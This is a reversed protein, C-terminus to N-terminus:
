ISELKAKLKLRYDGYEFSWYFGNLYFYEFKNFISFNWDEYVLITNIAKMEEFSDLPDIHYVKGKHIKVLDYKKGKKVIDIPMYFSSKDYTKKNYTVLMNEALYYSEFEEFILQNDELIRVKYYKSNYYYISSSKKINLLNWNNMEFIQLILPFEPFVSISYEDHGDLGSGEIMVEYNDKHFKFIVEVDLKKVKVGARAVNVKMELGTLPKKFEPEWIEKSRGKVAPYDRTFNLVSPAKSKVRKKHKVIDTRRGLHNNKTKFLDIESDYDKSINDESALDNNFDDLGGNKISDIYDFSDEYSEFKNLYILVGEAFKFIWYFNNHFVMEFEETINWKRDLLLKKAVKAEELTNFEGYAFNANKLSREIVFKGWKKHIFKDHVEEEYFENDSSFIRHKRKRNKSLIDNHYDNCRQNVELYEVASEFSSFSDEFILINNKVQFIWFNCDYNVLPNKSVESLKWDNEVLLCVAAEAQKLSSFKGFKIILNNIKKKVLYSNNKLEIYEILDDSELNSISNNM